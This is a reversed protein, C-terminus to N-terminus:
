KAFGVKNKSIKWVGKTNGFTLPIKAALSLPM